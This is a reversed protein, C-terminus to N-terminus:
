INSRIVREIESETHIGYQKLMRVTESMIDERLDHPELVEAQSGWKMVWARLEHTVAVDAEFIISGDDQTNIVQSEHWIKEMIYAAVDSAFWIRVTEPRGLIVGFSGQMFAEFSFDDPVNFTEETVTLIQIRDVAFTRIEDRLMCHGVIYIAGDVFWIKYPRVKRRTEKKKMGQYVIEICRRNLAADQVQSIIEQGKEFKRYPKIDVQLTGEVQQLYKVYEPPLTTKIKQFLSELSDYYITNKMFKLMDRSFYLAMLETLSLPLPIQNKVTDLLHWLNKNEIKETYLPFGARELAELDRYVTRSHCELADAIESASKGTRASLLMQIIKWQRELQDGRAM